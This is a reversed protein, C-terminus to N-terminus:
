YGDTWAGLFLDGSAFNFDKPWNTRHFEPSVNSYGKKNQLREDRRDHRRRWMDVVGRAEEAACVRLMREDNYM